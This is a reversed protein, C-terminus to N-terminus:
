EMEEDAGKSVRKTHQISDTPQDGADRVEEKLAARLRTKQFPEATTKRTTLPRRRSLPREKKPNKMCGSWIFIHWSFAYMMIINGHSHFCFKLRPWLRRSRPFKRRSRSEDLVCTHNFSVKSGPKRLAWGSPQSMRERILVSM